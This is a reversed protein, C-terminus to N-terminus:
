YGIFERIKKDNGNTGQNQLLLNETSLQWAGLFFRAMRKDLDDKKKEEIGSPDEIEICEKGYTKSVWQMDDEEHYKQLLCSMITMLAIRENRLGFGDKKIHYYLLPYGKEHHFNEGIEKVAEALNKNTQYWLYKTEGKNTKPILLFDDEDIRVTCDGPIRFLDTEKEPVILGFRSFLLAPFYIGHDLLGMEAYRTDILHKVALLRIHDESFRLGTVSRLTGPDM